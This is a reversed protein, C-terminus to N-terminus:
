PVFVGQTMFLSNGTDTEANGDPGGDYVRVKDLAWMARTTDKVAGPAVANASTFLVCSSADLNSSPTPVCPVTFGFKADVTTSWLSFGPPERDTLRVTLEARLEGTYESLDSARMVNTLRFAIHVDSDDPPGPQGVAVDMRLSGAGRAFAPSGDGIGITLRSSGPQPPSCSPFALPPGHTRNPATCANYAPVLPFFAPTAGKPRVSPTSTSVPLPQWDPSTEIVAPTNTINVVGSGDLNMTHLDANGGSVFADFAIKTGDPSWAPNSENPAVTNIVTQGAGDPNVFGIGPPNMSSFAIRTGNPSWAPNMTPIFSADNDRVVFRQDTGDPDTVWIEPPDPLCVEENADYFLRMSQWAIRTGDPSWAPSDSIRSQSTLPTQNSGDANMVWIESAPDDGVFPGGCAIGARSSTFAIKSGDPSWTPQYNAGSSTLQTAGSGDAAMTWIQGDSTFAIKSGDSSWAAGFDHVSNTTLQADGTGDPNVTHIEYYPWPSPPNPPAGENSEHAIKGNQGPFAPYAPSAAVLAAICVAGVLQVKRM